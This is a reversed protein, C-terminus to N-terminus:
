YKIASQIIETLANAFDEPNMQSVCVFYNTLDRKDVGDACILYVYSSATTFLYNSATCDTYSSKACSIETSVIVREDIDSVTVNYAAGSGSNINNKEFDFIYYTGDITIIAEQAKNESVHYVKVVGDLERIKNHVSDYFEVFRKVESNRKAVNEYYKFAKIKYSRQKILNVIAVIGIVFAAAAAIIWGVVPVSLGLAAITGAFAVAVTFGIGLAVLSGVALTGIFRLFDEPCLNYEILADLVEKDIADWDLLTDSFNSQGAFDIDALFEDDPAVEAEQVDALLVEQFSFSYGLSNTKETWSISQLVMNQYVTFQPPKNQEDVVKIRTIACIIANDKIDRFMQEVRQLSRGAKDVVYTKKGNLSFTGSLSVTRPNRYMHDAIPTGDITPHETITSSENVKQDGVADLIISVMNTTDNPDQYTILTAYEAM